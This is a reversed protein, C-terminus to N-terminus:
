PQEKATRRDAENHTFLELRLRKAAEAAEEKTDFSGGLHLKGKYRVRARWKNGHRGVGRMGSENDVRAGAKNEAQHQRTALRLHDLNVCKRVHCTHDITLGDPIPGNAREWAFRHVGRTRSDVTIMGYGNNGECGTWIICEGSRELGAAFAEDPNYHIKTFLPDGSKRWRQYHKSCWGRAEIEGECGYISCVRTADM